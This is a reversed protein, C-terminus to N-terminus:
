DADGDGDPPLQALLEEKNEIPLPALAPVEVGPVPPELKALKQKLEDVEKVLEGILKDRRVIQEKRDELKLKYYEVKALIADQKKKSRRKTRARTIVQLEPAQQLKLLRRKLNKMPEGGPGSIM